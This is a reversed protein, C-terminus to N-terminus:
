APMWMGNPWCSRMTKVSISVLLPTAPTGRADSTIREPVSAANPSGSSAIATMRPTSTSISMARVVIFRTPFARADATIARHPPSKVGGAGVRTTWVGLETRAPAPLAQNELHRQAGRWAAVSAPLVHQPCYERDDDQRHHHHVEANEVALG